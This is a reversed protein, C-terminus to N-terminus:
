RHRGRQFHFIIKAKSFLDSVAASFGAGSVSTHRFAFNAFIFIVLREFHHDGVLAVGEIAKLARDVRKRRNARVAMAPHDAMAHFGISLDEAADM